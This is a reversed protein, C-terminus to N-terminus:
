RSGRGMLGDILRSLEAVFEANHSEIVHGPTNADRAESIAEALKDIEYVPIISGYREYVAKVFDVQHDNVHEGYKEMRPVVVPVKGFAMASMFTSPGGHSVVVDADHLYTQMQKYPMMTTAEYHRPTYTCYGIQAFVEDQIRGTEVLTDIAELLRNFQQEHTGVTLFLM